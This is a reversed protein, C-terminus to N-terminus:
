MCPLWVVSDFLRVGPSANLRQLLSSLPVVFMAHNGVIRGYLCLWAFRRFQANNGNRVEFICSCWVCHFFFAIRRFSRCPKVPQVKEWHGISSTDPGCFNVHKWYSWSVQLVVCRFLSLYFNRSFHRASDDMVSCWVFAVFVCAMMTRHIVGYSPVFFSVHQSLADAFQNGRNHQKVGRWLWVTPKSQQTRFSLAAEKLTRLIVVFM